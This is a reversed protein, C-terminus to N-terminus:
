WGCLCCCFCTCRFSSSSCATGGCYMWYFQLPVGLYAWFLVRRDARRTPILSLYEKSRWSASSASSCSRFGHPELMIAVSSYGRWSGGPRVRQSLERTDSRRGRRLAGPPSSALGVCWCPSSAPWRLRRRHTLRALPDHPPEAWRLAARRNVITLSPLLSCSAALLSRRGLHGPAVGLGLASGAARLRVGPREQGDPRRLPAPASRSRSSATMERSCRWCWPRWWWSRRSARCRLRAAPLARCRLRRRGARQAGRRAPSRAM